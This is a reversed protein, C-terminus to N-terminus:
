YLFVCLSLPVYPKLHNFANMLLNSVFESLFDPNNTGPSAQGETYLPAQIKDTQALGFLTLLLMSQSEFGAKHDADVLVFFVGQLIPIFFQECFATITSPDIDAINTILERCLNLGAYEVERNDCKSTWLCCDTIYKFKRSDFV